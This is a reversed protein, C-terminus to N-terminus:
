QEKLIDTVQVDRGSRGHLAAIRLKTAPKTLLFETSCRMSIQTAAVYERRGAWLCINNTSSYGCFKLVVKAFFYEAWVSGSLEAFCAILCCLFRHSM